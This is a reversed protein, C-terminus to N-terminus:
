PLVGCRINVCQRPDGNLAAVNGGGDTGALEDSPRDFWIGLGGNRYAANDAFFYPFFVGETEDVVYIGNAGNAAAVNHVLRSTADEIFIGNGGNDLFSNSEYDAPEAETSGVVGDGHNGAFVDRSVTIPGPGDALLLGTGNSV